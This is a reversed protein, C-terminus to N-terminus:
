IRHSKDKDKDKDQVPQAPVKNQIVSLSSITKHDIKQLWQIDGRISEDLKSINTSASIEFYRYTRPLQQQRSIKSERLATLLGQRELFPYEWIQDPNFLDLFICNRPNIIGQNRIFESIDDYYDTGILAIVRGNTKKAVDSIHKAMLSLRDKRILAMMESDEPSIKKVEKSDIFKCVFGEKKIAKIMDIYGLVFHSKDVANLFAIYNEDYLVPCSVCLRLYAMMKKHQNKHYEVTGELAKEFEDFTFDDPLALCITKYGLNKNLFKLNREIWGAAAGDKVSEMVIIPSRELRTFKEEPRSASQM